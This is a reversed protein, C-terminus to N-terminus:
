GENKGDCGSLGDRRLEKFPGSLKLHFLGDSRLEAGTAQIAAYTKPEKKLLADSGKWRVCGTVNSEALSPELKMHYDVHLEGDPSKVDFKTVDLAGNKIDVQALLSDLSITGFDIGDQVMVQQSKNKLLPKLKTKGDGYSCGSPCAIEIEGQAKQWNQRPLDLAVSLEVKGTMPLGVLARLPLSSAPLDKGDVHVAVGKDGFGQLTVNGSLRGTAIKADVDLSLNGALLPLLRLDGELQEIYLTSPTADRTRISVANFYVRGPVIGREVSGITVDYSPALAEILKDKAREYPLTMQLAFLLV